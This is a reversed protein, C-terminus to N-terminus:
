DLTLANGDRDPYRRFTSLGRLLLLAVVIGV